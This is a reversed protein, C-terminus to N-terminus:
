YLAAKPQPVRESKLDRVVEKALHLYTLRNFRSSGVFHVVTSREKLEARTRWGNGVYGKRHDDLCILGNLQNLLVAWIGQEVDWKSYVNTRFSALKRFVPVLSEASFTNKFGFLGSNFRRVSVRSFDFGMEVFDAGVTSGGDSHFGDGAQTGIWELIVDPQRLFLIDSDILIVPRDPFRFIVNLLKLYIPLLSHAADIRPLCSRLAPARDVHEEILQMASARDFIAIGPFHETLRRVCRDQLTGDSQVAVALRHHPTRYRLLSKLALIYANVNPRNLLSYVVTPANRDIPIPPTSLVASFLLNSNRQLAGNWLRFLRTRIM